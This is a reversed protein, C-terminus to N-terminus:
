PAIDVALSDIIHERDALASSTTWGKEVLPAPEPAGDAADVAAVMADLWDNRQNLAKRYATVAAQQRPTLADFRRQLASTMTNPSTRTLWPNTM